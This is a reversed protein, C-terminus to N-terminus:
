SAPRHYEQLPHVTFPGRLMTEIGAAAAAAAAITTVYPVRCELATRRLRFSDRYAEGGAPTNIVLAVEGRQLADVANPSGQQVRKVAAVALGHSELFSATGNTAMLAFGCAALKQAVPLLATKHEDPVSVFVTGRTPLFTGAAVQAKAFAAGFSADIGMVEGTSKMEPGLVTDVGPFKIFPFVAEKVSVHSPIRESTFGIEALTKGIMCQVAVKALPV